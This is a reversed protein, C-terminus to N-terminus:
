SSSLFLAIIEYKRNATKMLFFANCTGPALRGVTQFCCCTVRGTERM